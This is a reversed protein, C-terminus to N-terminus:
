LNTPEFIDKEVEADDEVDEGGTEADPEVVGVGVAGDEEVEDFQSAQHVVVPLETWLEYPANHNPSVIIVEIASVPQVHLFQKVGVVKQEQLFLVDWSVSSLLSVRLLMSNPWLTTMDMMKIAEMM